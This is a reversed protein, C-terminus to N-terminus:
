YIKELINLTLKEAEIESSEIKEINDSGYWTSLTYKDTTINSWDCNHNDISTSKIYVEKGDINKKLCHKLSNCVEEKVVKRTEGKKELYINGKSDAVRSYSIPEKYEGDTLVTRYASSLELLTCGKTLGGLSLAPLNKDHEENISNIGLDKLFEYSTDIGIDQMVKIKIINTTSKIAEEITMEGKFGIYFNSPIYNGCKIQEDVYKSNLTIVGKELGCAYVSLISLMGGPPSLRETARNNNTVINDNYNAEGFTIVRNDKNRGGVIAVIAGTENDLIITSAEAKNLFNDYNNYVEELKSQIDSDECTYIKYGRTVLINEAEDESVNEKQRIDNIVDDLVLALYYSKVNDFFSTDGYNISAIEDGNKDYICTDEKIEEKVNKKEETKISKPLIFFLAIILCIFLIALIIKLIIKNKM